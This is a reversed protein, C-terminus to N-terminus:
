YKTNMSLTLLDYFLVRTGASLHHPKKVLEGAINFARALDKFKDQDGNMLDLYLSALEWSSSTYGIYVEPLNTSIM